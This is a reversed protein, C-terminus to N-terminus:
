LEGGHGYDAKMARMFASTSDMESRRRRRANQDAAARTQSKSRARARKKDPNREYWKALADTELALEHLEEKGISPEFDINLETLIEKLKSTGKSRIARLKAIRLYVARKQTDAVREKGTAFAVLLLLLVWLRM